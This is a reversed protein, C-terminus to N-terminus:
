YSGCPPDLKIHKYMSLVNRFSQAVSGCCTQAFRSQDLFVISAIFISYKVLVTMENDEYLPCIRQLSSFTAYISSQYSM